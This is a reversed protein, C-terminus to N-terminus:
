GSACHTLPLFPTLADRCFLISWWLIIHNHALVVLALERIQGWRSGARVHYGLRRKIMSAVTEVQVRKRYTNRDFRVQMLRRDKGSASKSTLQDRSPQFSRAVQLPSALSGTIAKPIMAPM